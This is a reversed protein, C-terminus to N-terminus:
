GIPEPWVRVLAVTPVAALAFIVAVAVQGVAAFSGTAAAFVVLELIFRAPDGLRRHAKPAIWMWWAAAMVLPFVVALVPSVQWGYWAVAVLGALECLFRVTLNLASM